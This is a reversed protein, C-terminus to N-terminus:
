MENIEKAIEICLDEAQVYSGLMDLFGHDCGCYQISKVPVNVNQLRKAFYDSSVRLYDYEASVITMPPFKCLQTDSAYIVSILPDNLKIKGQTYFNDKSSKGVTNKIRDIRTYAYEKHEDIVPYYDYSWTFATQDKYDTSDCGPYIEFARKIINNKDKLLCANTLAGGASDGALMIKDPNINYREANNYVWQITGCADNLPGPYPCEPALRYEPFIVVANAKEAIFKMQNRYLKMDGAIFGGGHLYILTPLLRAETIEPRYVFIDIYHDDDINILLEDEVISTETLDYTVKDPRFRENSIKFGIKNRETFLLSKQKIVNLIRSDLVHERDDDPVPKFRIEIGDVTKIYEKRKIDDLLNKDYQRM